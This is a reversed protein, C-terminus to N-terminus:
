LKLKELSQKDIITEDHCDDFDWPNGKIIKTKVSKIALDIANNHIEKGIELFTNYLYDYNHYKTDPKIGKKALTEEINM